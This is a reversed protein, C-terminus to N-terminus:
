RRYDYEYELFMALDTLGSLDFGPNDEPRITFIWTDFLSHNLPATFASGAANGSSDMQFTHGAGLGAIAVHVRLGAVNEGLAQLTYGKLRLNTHNAPFFAPSLCLEAAGQSRLYYLEDPAYLRLAIGRSASGGAPLAALIQQELNADFFGDYYIVLHIDLIQHLDFTNVARPLDLQWMTAVGNNEFLRLEKSDLQFVLADQRVNYESLPMVDAPYTQNVISGSKTRFQSLGINRLTGSVGEAGTLGVFVVDVQKIKNLYFGPYRRDFHELTTEFFTRGTQLLRAFALPFNDALSIMQKMRAKKSKTRVHDLSFYEIDFLLAEAGLLGDLEKLGYEFKIKRLNRGTEAEYAKEMMTAVEIAMDQYRRALRRAERALNYWMASSFERGKLFALNERAYQEQMRAIALRQKAIEERAQAQQVQEGAMKRYADAAEIERQLRSAELAHSLCTRQYALDQIVQSRNKKDASYYTYGTITQKVEKSSGVAAASAWAQLSDLELLEWRAAAFDSAAQLANQHQVGAYAAGARAVDVGERAEGLGRQELEVSASAIAAQQSLQQERFKENEGTSQFQIYVQEVQAAHQAFYRALNQLYEFSFPPIHVGLGIFNLESNIKSIQMVARSLAIMIRPNEASETKKVFLAQIVAQVRSRLPAFKQNKYLP